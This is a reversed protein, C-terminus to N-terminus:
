SFDWFKENLVLKRAASDIREDDLAAAVFDDYGEHEVALQVLWAPATPEDAKVDGGGVVAVPLVRTYSVTEGDRKYSFEVREWVATLGVFSNAFNPPGKTTVQELLAPVDKLATILQGVASASNFKEGKMLSLDVEKESVLQVGKGCGYWNEVEQGLEPSDVTLKLTAGYQGEDFYADTVTGTYKSALGEETDWETM